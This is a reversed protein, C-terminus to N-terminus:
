NAIIPLFSIRSAGFGIKPNIVDGKEIKMIFSKGDLSSSFYFNRFSVGRLFWDM